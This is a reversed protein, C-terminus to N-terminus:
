QRALREECDLFASTQLWSPDPYYAFVASGDRIRDIIRRHAGLPLAPCGWSRGLRGRKAAVTRNVYAAGHMVIRREEALDNVGPELGSLRLTYGHRGKYTDETRFLGLSSQLSGPENSFAVAFNDGSNLGHAVLERFLVKRSRVDLVWLRPEVSPLSYDIITLLPHTFHGRAKGCAYARLALDLVPRRPLSAARVAPRVPKMARAPRSTRVKRPARRTRAEAPLTVGSALILAVLACSAGRRWNWRSRTERETVGSM